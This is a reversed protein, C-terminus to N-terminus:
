GQSPGPSAPPTLSTLHKRGQSSKTGPGRKRIETKGEKADEQTETKKLRKTPKDRAQKDKQKYQKIGEGGEGKKRGEQRGRM